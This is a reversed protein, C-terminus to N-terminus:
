WDIKMNSVFTQTEESVFNKTGDSIAFNPCGRRSDFSRFCRIFSHSDLGPVLDLIIARSAACTLLTVWVKKLTM